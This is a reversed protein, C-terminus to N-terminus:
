NTQNILAELVSKRKGIQFENSFIDRTMVFGNQAIRWLECPDNYLNRIQHFIHDPATDILLLDRGNEYFVNQGLEDTLMLLVGRLAAEICSGTPFGDFAGPLLTNSRNASLIIDMGDFFSKLRSQELSGYFKIHGSLEKHALDEETFTGAVHFRAPIGAKVLLAATEEFVDFGKDVGRVTYRNAVFCIDLSDKGRGFYSRETIAFGPDAGSSVGGYIFSVKEPPCIGKDLVYKKTVNQTVIMQRFNKSGAIRRLKSESEPNSLSFGGGPYLCFAFDLNNKELYDILAYTMSLFLCYTLRAKIKEHPNYLTLKRQPYDKRYNRILTRVDDGSVLSLAEGTTVVKMNPFISYYNNFEIFRFLSAEYPFIDDIVLLDYHEQPMIGISGLGNKALHYATQFAYRPNSFTLKLKSFLFDIRNRMSVNM